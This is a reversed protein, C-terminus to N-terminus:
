EVLTLVKNLTTAANAQDYSNAVTFQGTKDMLTKCVLGTASVGGGSDHLFVSAGPAYIYGDMVENNSGFQVTLDATNWSPQLVAIGDYPSASNAPSYINLLSNSKQTLTGGGVDLVAGSTNTFTLPNLTYTGTGFTATVGTSITVGNEFVYVIGSSSGPFALNADISVNSGSFCVVGNSNPSPIDAATSISNKSQVNSGGSQCQSSPTTTGTKSNNCSTTDWCPGNLNGWPSTRPASNMTAPTPTTQHQLQSTGVVDIFTSNVTGGNGTVNMADTTSSNVYIGCNPSEIDYSGQVNLAPGTPAMVWICAQGTTPTGAVARAMVGVRKGIFIASTPQAAIAEIYVGATTGTQPGNVPPTNICITNSTAGNCNGTSCTGSFGNLAAANCADTKATDTSHHYLYSQAGALAAADVAVQLDRKTHFLVGVDLALAMFGVLVSGCLATLVLTQAKEERFLRM